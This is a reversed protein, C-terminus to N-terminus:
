GNIVKYANILTPILKNFARIKNLIVNFEEKIPSPLLPLAEKVMDTNILFLVKSPENTPRMSVEVTQHKESKTEKPDIFAKYTYHNNEGIIVHGAKRLCSIHASVSRYTISAHEAIDPISATRNEANLIFELVLKRKTKDTKPNQKPVPMTFDEPIYYKEDIMKIPVDCRKRLRYIAGYVHDVDMNARAALDHPSCGQNKQILELILKQKKGYM